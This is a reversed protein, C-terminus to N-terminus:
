KKSSIYFINDVQIINMLGTIKLVNVISIMDEYRDISAGILLEKAEEDKFRYEFEYWKSLYKMIDELRENKFVFKGSQWATYLSVDVKRVEMEGDEKNYVVQEGPTIIQASHEDSVEVKGEVLTTFVEKDDDYSRLNFSTGLVKVKLSNTEVIFPHASDKSVEFYAEGDLKVIRYKDKFSVPFELKTEANLYVKTEDSLTLTYEMGTLTQISNWVSVEGSTESASYDIGVSDTVIRTGDVEELHLKQNKGIDIIQGSGLTLRAGVTGSAIQPVSAVINDYVRTSNRWYFIGGSLLILGVAAYKLLPRRLLINRNKVLRGEIKEWGEAVPFKKISRLNEADGCEGLLRHMLAKNSEKEKQWEEIEEEDQATQSGTFFAALLEAIRFHRKSLNM